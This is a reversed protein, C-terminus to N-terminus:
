KLGLKELAKRLGAIDEGVARYVVKGDADLLYTSPFETVRYRAFVSSATLEGGLVIPYTLGTAQVYSRVAAPPDGKDIAVIRFGQAQLQVYLKEFEPNELRCPPCNLYWFNVLTGKAGGSLRALSVTRGALSPLQFAPAVSGLALLTAAPDSQKLVAQAPPVYHFASATMPRDLKVDTIEASFSSNPGFDEVSRRLVDNRDVYLKEVYPFPASGTVAIVHFTEGAVTEDPLLKSTLNADAFDPFVAYSQTFFYRYPIGWWPENIQKASADVSAKSYTSANAFSFLYRGDSILRTPVVEDNGTLEIMAFNPKMLVVSGEAHFEPKGALRRTLRLHAQLTRTARTRSAVKALLAQAPVDAHAPPTVLVSVMLCLLVYDCRFSLRM